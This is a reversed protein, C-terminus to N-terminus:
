SSFRARVCVEPDFLLLDAHSGVAITGRDKLGYIAAPKGTLEHVAQEM